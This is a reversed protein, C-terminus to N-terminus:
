RSAKAEHTQKDYCMQLANRNTPEFDVMDLPYMGLSIIVNRIELRFAELDSFTSSMFVDVHETMM